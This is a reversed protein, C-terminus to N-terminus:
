VLIFFNRSDIVAIMKILVFKEVIGVLLRTCGVTHQGTEDNEWGCVVRSGADM